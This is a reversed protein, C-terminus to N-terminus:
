TCLKLVGTAIGGHMGVCHLHGHFHIVVVVLGWNWVTVERWLFLRVGRTVGPPVCVVCSLLISVIGLDKVCM